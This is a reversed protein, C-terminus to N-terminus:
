WKGSNTRGPIEIHKPHRVAEGTIDNDKLLRVILDRYLGLRSEASGAAPPSNAPLAAGVAVSPQPAAFVTDGNERQIQRADFTRGRPQGTVTLMEGATVSLNQSGLPGTQVLIRGSQDELVFKDGFIDTVKGKITGDPQIQNIPVQSLSAGAFITSGAVIASLALKRKIWPHTTPM